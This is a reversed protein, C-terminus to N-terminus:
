RLRLPTPSPLSTPGPSPGLARRRLERGLRESAEAQEIQLRLAPMRGPAIGNPLGQRRREADLWLRERRDLASRDLAEQRELVHLNAPGGPGLDVGDQRLQERYIRQDQRLELWGNAQSRSLYGWEEPPGGSALGIPVAMALGVVLWAVFRRRVAATRLRQLRGSLTRLLCGAPAGQRGLPLPYGM